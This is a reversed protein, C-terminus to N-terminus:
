PPGCPIHPPRFSSSKEGILNTNGRRTNRWHHMEVRRDDRPVSLPGMSPKMEQVCRRVEDWFNLEHRRSADLLPLSLVPLCLMFVATQSWTTSIELTKIDFADTSKPNTLGHMKMYEFLDVLWFCWDRLNIAQRKFVAWCTEPMRMDMMLLKDVATAAEPKGYSRPPPLTTPRPRDPGVVALLM